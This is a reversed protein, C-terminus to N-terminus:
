KNMHYSSLVIIPLKLKSKLQRNDFWDINRNEIKEIEWGRESEREKERSFNFFHMCKYFLWKCCFWRIFHQYNWWCMERVTAHTLKMKIKCREMFKSHFTRYCYVIYPKRKKALAKTRWRDSHLKHPIWLSSFM